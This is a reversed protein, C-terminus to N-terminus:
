KKSRAYAEEITAIIRTFEKPDQMDGLRLWLIKNEPVKYNKFLRKLVEYYNAYHFKLYEEQGKEIDRGRKRVNEFLEPTDRVLVIQLDLDTAMLRVSNGASADILVNSLIPITNRREVVSQVHSLCRLLTAREITAKM